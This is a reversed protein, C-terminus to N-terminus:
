AVISRTNLLLFGRWIKRPLSAPIMAQEPATGLGTVFGNRLRL